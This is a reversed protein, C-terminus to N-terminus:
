EWYENLRDKLIELIEKKMREASYEKPFFRHLQENKFIVRDVEGKKVEMLINKMTDLTLIGEQSMKKIRQAQSLSPSFQAYKLAECFQKQEDESLFSIEFAPNFSITGDDLKELLEPILEAIKLYRQEQKPSDGFDKGIIQITKVGKLPHDNQSGKKRGGTRKIADYKMKYAIAKESPKIVERQLNADVMNIIAEDDKM